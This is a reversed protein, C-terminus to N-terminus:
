VVTILPYPRHLATVPLQRPLMPTLQYRLFTVLVDRRSSGDASISSPAVVAVVAVVAVRVVVTVAVAVKELSCTPQGTHLRTRPSTFSQSVVLAAVEELTRLHCGVELLTGALIRAMNYLFGGGEFELRLGDVAAAGGGRAGGATVRTISCGYLTRVTTNRGGKSQFACFDHRGTLIAAAANMRPVDVVLDDRIRADARASGLAAGAEPAAAANPAPPSAPPPRSSAAPAQASDTTPTPPAPSFTTASTGLTATQLQLYTRCFDVLEERSTAPITYAYRKWLCGM